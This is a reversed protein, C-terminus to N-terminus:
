LSYLFYCQLLKKCHLSVFREMETLILPLKAAMDVRTGFKRGFPLDCVVVDVKADPLPITMSSAKMVHIRDGVEAFNINENAKQIQGDDIDLGIFLADPHEQAAEILITGVGCMPDLVCFGPQIQALSAIAWAITSRLGTSKIYYRNALPLRTLPIGMLCYDDSLHINVEVQPNKLDVKWGLLRSLGVGIVRSVDETPY